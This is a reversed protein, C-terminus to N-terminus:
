VGGGEVKAIAALAAEWALMVRQEMERPVPKQVWPGGRAKAREREAAMLERLAELLEDRRTRLETFPAPYAELMETPVGECANWCTVLRRANAQQERNYDPVPADDIWVCAVARTGVMLLINEHPMCHDAEDTTMRGETHKNM